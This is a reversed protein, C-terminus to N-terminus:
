EPFITEVQTLAVAHGAAHSELGAKFRQAASPGGPDTELSSVLMFYLKAVGSAFAADLAETAKARNM